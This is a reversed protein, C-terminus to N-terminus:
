ATLPSYSAGAQSGPTVARLEDTAGPVHAACRQGARARRVAQVPPAGSAWSDQQPRWGAAPPRKFPDGPASAVLRHPHRLSVGPLRRRRAPRGQAPRLEDSPALEDLVSQPPHRGHPQPLPMRAFAGWAGPWEKSAGVLHALGEHGLGRAEFRQHPMRCGRGATWRRQKGGGAGPWAGPREARPSGREPRFGPRQGASPLRVRNVAAGRDTPAATSAKRLPSAAGIRAARPPRGAVPGSGLRGRQIRRPLRGGAGPLLRRSPLPERADGGSSV